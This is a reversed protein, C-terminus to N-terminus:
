NDPLVAIVNFFLKEGIARYAEVWKAAADDGAKARSIFERYITKAIKHYTNQVQWFNVAIPLSQVLEIFTYFESLM